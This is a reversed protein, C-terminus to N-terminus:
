YADQDTSEENSFEKNKVYHPKFLMAFEILSMNKFDNDYDYIEIPCKEYQKFINACYGTAQGIEDFQLVKYWQEPKQM